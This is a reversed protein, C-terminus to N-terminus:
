EEVPFFYDRILAQSLSQVPPGNPDVVRQVIGVFVIKNERDIWFWNTAYGDWLYSGQGLAVEAAAPDTVAIGNYGFQYGPRIEQVGIGFGKNLLAPSLHNSMMLNAADASLIRKGELQGQGLLMRGLRAYDDATSFIGAGGSSFYQQNNLPVLHETENAPQLRNNKWVYLTALRPMKELPVYFDTDKMELPDFINQKMFDRLKMGSLREVIAGQLDVAISYRWQTGPQYALPIRSIKDVFEANTASEFLDTLDYQQDVWDNTFGYSFGATHTLLQEMTPMTAMPELVPRGNADLEKFVKLDSLEPLYKTIPDDPQWKGQDYLVMMAVATVPKSMSYIRVITDAKMAAGTELDRKGFSTRDVLENGQWVVTATGAFQGADVLARMEEAIPEITPTAEPGTDTAALTILPFVIFLPILTLNMLRTM